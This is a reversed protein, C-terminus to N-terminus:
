SWFLDVSKVNLNCGRDDSTQYESEESSYIKRNYNSYKISNIIVELIDIDFLSSPFQLSIM